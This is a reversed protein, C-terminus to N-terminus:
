EAFDKLSHVLHHMIIGSATGVNLSRVSGYQEIYVMKDCLKQSTPTLGLGEEGFFLLTNKQWCHSSIPIAGPVNDIGVFVYKKKLELLEDLTPIWKINSYNHVGVAGRKDFKKNGVYFIEKANFANANRILTGLNFDGIVNEACVAFPFATQELKARIEEVTLNKFHDAVNFTWATLHEHKHALAHQHLPANTILNPTTTVKQKM